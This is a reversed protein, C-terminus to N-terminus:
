RLGPETAAEDKASNIKLLQQVLLGWLFFTVIGPYPQRLTVKLNNDIIVLFLVIAATWWVAEDLKKRRRWLLSLTYGILVLIPLSSLAGFNYILDLYYNHASTTVERSIPDAHGFAVTKGSEVIGQSYLSWDMFRDRVNKPVMASEVVDDYKGVYLYKSSNFYVVFSLVTAMAFVIVPLARTKRYKYTAFATVFMILAGMALMSNGAAVYMGMLPGLIFLLRRHSDWLYALAMAFASVFILPVYQFHSYISFIYLDHTLLIRHQAWTAILQLPVVAALVYLFAKLITKEDRVMQGLVLGAAPLLFQILLILKRRELAIDFATVSSSVIMLLLMAGILLMGAYAKRYAGFALIGGYCALVSVPIPVAKLQGGSDVMPLTGSNYIAGSLQFFLPFLLAAGIVWTTTTNQFSKLEAGRYFVYLLGANVLYLAAMGNQGWQFFAYPVCFLLLLHSILDPGVVDQSKLLRIRACQAVVMIAGGIVSLGVAHWYFSPVLLLGLGAASWAWLFLVIQKSLNEGKALLSPGIINAFFTGIFSGIGFASFLAGAIDKGVILLILLRFAYLSTGIVTTSGFHPILSTLRHVRLRARVFGVSYFLPAIAWVYLFRLDILVLVFLLIQLSLFFRVNKEHEGRQEADTLHVENIWEISRRVIIALAIWPEANALYVSLFYCLAALPLVLVVRSFLIAEASEQRSLIVTRANASLAYFTALTAGQAIGVDAAIAMEGLLGFVILLGTIAYTVSAYAIVHLIKMQPELRRDPLFGGPQVPPM